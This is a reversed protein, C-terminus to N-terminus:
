EDDGEGVMGEPNGEVEAPVETGRPPKDLSTVWNRVGSPDSVRTVM